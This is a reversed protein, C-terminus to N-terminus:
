AGESGGPEYEALAHQLDIAKWAWETLPGRERVVPRTTFMVDVNADIAHVDVSVWDAFPADENPQLLLVHRFVLSAEGEGGRRTSDMSPVIARRGWAVVRRM